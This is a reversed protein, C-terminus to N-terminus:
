KKKKFLGTIKGMFGDLNVKGKVGDAIQKAVGDPLNAGLVSEVAKVPNKKFDAKFLKDTKVKTVIKDIERKIDM